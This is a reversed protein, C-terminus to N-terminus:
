SESAYIWEKAYRLAARKTGGMKFDPHDETWGSAIFFLDEPSERIVKALTRWAPQKVNKEECRISDGSSTRTDCDYLGSGFCLAIWGDDIAEEYEIVSRHSCQTRCPIIKGQPDIWAGYGDRYYAEADAM